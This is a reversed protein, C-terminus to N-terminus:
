HVDNCKRSTKWYILKSYYVTGRRKSTLNIRIQYDEPHKEPIFVYKYDAGSFEFVFCGKPAGDMSTAVPIGEDDYPGTWWSGCSVDAITGERKYKGILENITKGKLNGHVVQTENNPITSLEWSEGISNEVYDKNLVTKLKEGGWIRYLFLPPFKFPYLKM